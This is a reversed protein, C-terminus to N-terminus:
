APQPAQLDQAPAPKGAELLGGTTIAYLAMDGGFVHCRLAWESSDALCVVLWPRAM